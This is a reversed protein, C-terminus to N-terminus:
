RIVATGLIPRTLFGLVPVPRISLRSLEFRAAYGGIADKQRWWQRLSRASELASDVQSVLAVEDPTPAATSESAPQGPM